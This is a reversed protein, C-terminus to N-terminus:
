GRGHKAAHLKVKYADMELSIYLLSVNPNWNHASTYLVAASGIAAPTKYGILCMRSPGTQADRAMANDYTSEVFTRNRGQESRISGLETDTTQLERISLNYLGGCYCCNTGNFLYCSTGISLNYEYM